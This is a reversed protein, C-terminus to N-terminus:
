GRASRRASRHRPLASVVHRLFGGAGPHEVQASGLRLQRRERQDSKRREDQNEESVSRPAPYEVAASRETVEVYHGGVWGTLQWTQGGRVGEYWCAVSRPGRPSSWRGGPFM